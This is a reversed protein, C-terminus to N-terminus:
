EGYEPFTITITTGLNPQSEIKLIGKHSKIIADVISLGLGTGSTKTTYFPELIKKQNELSIGEGTDKIKLIVQNEIKTLDIKIESNEDSADIANLLLNLVVQHTKEKDGRIYLEPNINNIVSIKCKSLHVEM